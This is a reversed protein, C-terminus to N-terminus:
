GQDAIEAAWARLGALFGERQQPTLADMARLLPGARMQLFEAVVARHEPSLHVLTRRRNAPDPARDALGARCLDSVLDSANPLSVGLRAALQSVTLPSDIGLQTVVAGHRRTLSHSEFVTRLGDPMGPAPHQRFYVAVQPILELIERRAAEFNSSM